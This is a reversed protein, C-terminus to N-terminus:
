IVAGVVAQYHITNNSLLFPKLIGLSIVARALSALDWPHVTSSALDPCRCQTLGAPANTVVAAVGRLGTRVNRFARASRRRAPRSVVCFDFVLRVDRGVFGCPACSNVIVVSAGTDRFPEARDREPRHATPGAYTLMPREVIQHTPGEPGDSLQRGSEPILAGPHNDHGGGVVFHVPRQTLLGPGHGVGKSSTTVHVLSGATLREPRQVIASPDSAEPRDQQM